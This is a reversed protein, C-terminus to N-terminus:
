AAEPFDYAREVQQQIADITNAPQEAFFPNELPAQVPAVAEVPQLANGIVVRAVAAAEYVTHKRMVMEEPAHQREFEPNNHSNNM